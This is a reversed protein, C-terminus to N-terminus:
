SIINPPQVKHAKLKCTSCQYLKFGYILKGCQDCFSPLVSTSSEFRFFGPRVFKQNPIICIYRHPLEFTTDRKTKNPHLNNICRDVGLDYCRKHVTRDCNVCRVGSEEVLGWLVKQFFNNDDIWKSPLVNILRICVKCYACFNVLNFYASTFRHGNHAYVKQHVANRRRIKMLEKPFFKIETMLKAGVPSM